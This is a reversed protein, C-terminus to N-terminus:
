LKSKAVQGQQQPEGDSYNIIAKGFNNETDEKTKKLEFRDTYKGAKVAIASQLSFRTLM